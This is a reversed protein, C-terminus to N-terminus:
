AVGQCPHCGCQQEHEAGEGQGTMRAVSWLASCRALEVIVQQCKGPRGAVAQHVGCVPILALAPPKTEHQVAQPRLEVGAAIWLRARAISLHIARRLSLAARQIRARLEHPMLPLAMAGAATQGRDLVEAGRVPRQRHHMNADDTQAALAQAWYLALYFHSGRNDLEGTKRSPSKDEDLLKGTATSRRPWSRPGRTAPRTPRSRRAVGLALFEGLSDWRLHNEEVLQQVHKPASGGAGTEYMGGGAMLPVISLMKASTGLELIPFLDTLYDRLVNGTVSITDQGRSDRARDHAADGRREQAM